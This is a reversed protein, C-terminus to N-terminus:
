FQTKKVKFLKLVMIYAQLLPIEKKKEFSPPNYKIISRFFLIRRTIHSTWCQIPAHNKSHLHCTQYSWPFSNLRHRPCNWISEISLFFLPVTFPINKLHVVINPCFSKCHIYSGSWGHSSSFPDIPRWSPPLKSGRPQIINYTSTSEILVDVHHGNICGTVYMSRKWIIGWILNNTLLFSFQKIDNDILM